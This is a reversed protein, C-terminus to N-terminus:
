KELERGIITEIDEKKLNFVLISNGIMHDPDNQRLYYALKAFDNKIEALNANVDSIETETDKLSASPINDIPLIGEEMEESSIVAFWFHQKNQKIIKIIIGAPNKSSIEAIKKQLSSTLEDSNNSKPLKFVAKPSSCLYIYMGQEKLDKLLEPSFDGWPLLQNRALKLQELKKNLASEEEFLELIKASLEEGTLEAFENDEEAKEIGSLINIVKVTEGCIQELSKRDESDNPESADFHLLGLDRLKELAVRRDELMCLVTTKKMKVIM